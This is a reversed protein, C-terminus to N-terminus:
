AVKTAIITVSCACNTAKTAALRLTTGAAVIRYTPHLSTAGVLGGDTSINLDLANSINNSGGSTQLQVTDGSGGNAADKCATVQLIRVKDPCVVNYNATGDPIDIVWTVLTGPGSGDIPTVAFKAPDITDDTLARNPVSDSKLQDGHFMRNRVSM